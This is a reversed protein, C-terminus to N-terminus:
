SCSRHKFGKAFCLMEAPIPKWPEVRGAEHLLKVAGCTRYVSQTPSISTWGEIEGIMLVLERITNICTQQKNIPPTLRTKNNRRM